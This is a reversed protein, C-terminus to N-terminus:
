GQPHPCCAPQSCGALRLCSGTELLCFDPSRASHPLCATLASLPLFGSLDAGGGGCGWPGEGRTGHVTYWTAGAGYPAAAERVGM